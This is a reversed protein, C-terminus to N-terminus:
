FNNKYYYAGAVALFLVVAVLPVNIGSSEQAYSERAKHEVIKGGKLIGVQLRALIEHAEDSHGIDEFAETADTGAVDLIVEEGGPHEDIYSSVNYVKGNIVVWVDDHTTHKSIEDFEYVKTSVSETESM